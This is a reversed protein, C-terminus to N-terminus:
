TLWLFDFNLVNRRRVQAHSFDDDGIDGRPTSEGKRIILTQAAGAILKSSLMDNTSAGEAILKDLSESRQHVLYYYRSTSAPEAPNLVADGRSKKTLPQATQQLNKYLQRSADVDDNTFSPLRNVM